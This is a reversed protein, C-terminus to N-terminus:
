ARRRRAGRQRRVALRHLAGDPRRLGALADELDLVGTAWLALAVGIAVIAVPLRDWVFLAVVAGLVVFTITSDDRHRM